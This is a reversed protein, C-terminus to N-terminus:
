IKPAEKWNYIYFDSYKILENKNFHSAKDDVACVTMGIEKMIKVAMLVDDYGICEDLNVNLQKAAYIYLDPSGKGKNVDDVSCIVDFYDYIELRKLAPTMLSHPLGTTVALKIGNKKLYELYDIANDKLNINYTYEDIALLNWEIIIDKISDDLNFRNKTYYAAEELSLHQLNEIYDDPLELSRKSLFINDVKSWLHTSDFLTGDLDFLAANFNM